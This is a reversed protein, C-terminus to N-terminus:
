EGEKQQWISGLEHIELHNIFTTEPGDISLNPNVPVCNITAAAIGDNVFIEFSTRDFLV